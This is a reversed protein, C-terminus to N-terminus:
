QFLARPRFSSSNSTGFGAPRNRMRASPSENVNPEDGVRVVDHGESSARRRAAQGPRSSSRRLKPMPPAPTLSQRAM